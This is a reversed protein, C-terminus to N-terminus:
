RDLADTNILRPVREAQKILESGFYRRREKLEVWQGDFPANGMDLPNIYRRWRIKDRIDEPDEPNVRSWDIMMCNTITFDKDSDIDEWEEPLMRELGYRAVNMFDGHTVVFVKKGAQERHLTSQFDRFREYVDPMSEGGDLRSYWPNAHKEAATLPFQSRQEARSVKGYVGWSREVLRDDITWGGLGPGGMRAATERTRMFPSVYLADFSALGGFKRDIVGKTIDAEECGLTTLRNMWDPRAFIQRVIEPDIRLANPDARLINPDVGLVELRDLARELDESDVDLSELKQVVNAESQGHRAFVIRRPMTM